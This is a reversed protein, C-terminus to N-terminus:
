CKEKKSSKPPNKPAGRGNRPLRVDLTKPAKSDTKEM